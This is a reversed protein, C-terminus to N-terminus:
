SLIIYGAVSANDLSFYCCTKGPGDAIAVETNRRPQGRHPWSRNASPRGSIGSAGLIGRCARCFPRLPAIKRRFADFANPLRASPSPLALAGSRPLPLKRSPLDAGISTAVISLCAVADVQQPYM